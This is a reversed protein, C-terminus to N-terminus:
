SDFRPNKNVNHNGSDSNELKRKFSFTRARPELPSFRNYEGKGVLQQHQQVATRRIESLLVPKVSM